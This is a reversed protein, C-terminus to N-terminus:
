RVLSSHLVEPLTIDMSPSSWGFSCFYVFSGKIPLLVHAPSPRVIVTRNSAINKENPASSLDIIAVHLDILGLSFDIPALFFVIRQAAHHNAQLVGHATPLGCLTNTISLFASLPLDSSVVLGYPILVASDPASQNSPSHDTNPKAQLPQPSMQLQNQCPPLIPLVPQRSELSTFGHWSQNPYASNASVSPFGKDQNQHSLQIPFRTESQSSSSCELTGSFTLWIFWRTPFNTVEFQSLCWPHTLTWNENTIIVIVTTFLFFTILTFILMLSTYRIPPPKSTNPHFILRM